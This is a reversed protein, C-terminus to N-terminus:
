RMSFFRFAILVLLGGFFTCIFALIGNLFEASPGPLLIVSSSGSKWEEVEIIEPRSVEATTSELIEEEDGVLVVESLQPESM